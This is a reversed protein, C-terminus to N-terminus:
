PPTTTHRSSAFRAATRAASSAGRSSRRARTASPRRSPSRRRREPREAHRRRHLPSTARPSAGVPSRVAPSARCASARRAPGGCGASRAPPPRPRGRARATTRDCRPRAQLLEAARLPAEFDAALRVADQDDVVVAVMRGLDGRHERRRSREFRRMTTANWGCRNVRVAASISANPGASAPASWTTSVSM